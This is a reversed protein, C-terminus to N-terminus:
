AHQTQSNNKYSMICLSVILINFIEHQLFVIPDFTSLLLTVVIIYLGGLAEISRSALWWKLTRWFSLAIMSIFLFVGAIGTAVAVELFSNHFGTIIEGTPSRLLRSSDYVGPQWYAEYGIGLLPSANFSEKALSWLVTRGTLTSDKGLGSLVEDVMDVDLAILVILFLLTSSIVTLTIILGIKRYRLALWVVPATLILLFSVLSSSSKTDIMPYLLAVALLMSILTYKYRIGSIQLSLALLLIAKGLVNKQDYIGTLYSEAGVHEATEYAPYLFEYIYANGLSLSVGFAMAILLAQFYKEPKYSTGILFGIAVTYLLQFSAILTREQDLSWLTSLLALFPLLLLFWSHKLSYKIAQFNRAIMLASIAYILLWGLSSIGLRTLVGSSAIFVLVLYMTSFKQFSDTSIENAVDTELDPM